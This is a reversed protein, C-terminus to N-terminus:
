YPLDVADLSVWRIKEGLQLRATSETLCRSLLLSTCLDLTFHLSLFLKESFFVFCFYAQTVSVCSCCPLVLLHIWRNQCFSQAQATWFFFFTQWTSSLEFDIIVTLLELLVKCTFTVGDQALNDMHIPCTGPPLLWNAMSPPVSTFFILTKTTRFPLFWCKHLM